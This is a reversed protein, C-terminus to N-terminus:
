RYATIMGVPADHHRTEFWRFGNRRLVARIQEPDHGEREHWELFLLDVRAWQGAEDLRRVIEYEAGEADLKTVVRREAAESLLEAFIPAADRVAVRERAGGAETVPTFFSNSPRFSSHVPIEAEDDRDALGFRELRIHGALAPNREINAAAIAASSPVLEFSVVQADYEKAFFLAAAGINAGIDVVFFPGPAEFAYLREVFVEHLVGLDSEHLATLVTGDLDVEVAGDAVKFSAGSREHLGKAFRVGRLFVISGADPRLLTVGTGAVHLGSSDRTSGDFLWVGNRALPGAWGWGFRLLYVLWSFARRLSRALGMPGM